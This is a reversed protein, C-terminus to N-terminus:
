AFMAREYIALYRNAIETPNTLKRIERAARIGMNRCLSNDTLEVMANSISDSDRSVIRGTEHDSVVYHAPIDSAIVACGEAMAELCAYDLEEGHSLALFCRGPGLLELYDRRDLFGPFIVDDRISPPVLLSDNKGGVMILSAEGGKKAQLLAFADIALQGGKGRISLDRSGFVFTPRRESIGTPTAQAASSRQPTLPPPIYFTNKSLHNRPLFRLPLLSTMVKARRTALRNMAMFELAAATGPINM